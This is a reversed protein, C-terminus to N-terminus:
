IIRMLKTNFFFGRKIVATNCVSLLFIDLASSIQILRREIVYLVRSNSPPHFNQFKALLLCVFYHYVLSHGCRNLIVCDMKTYDNEFIDAEDTQGRTSSNIVYHLYERFM